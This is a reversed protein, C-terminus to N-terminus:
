VSVQERLISITLSLMIYIGMFIVFALMTNELKRPYTPQDPAIPSVGLSLYRVQRSAEIRAGELQQLAVQVMTQRALLNAEAVALEGSIAALSLNGDNTETLERRIEGVRIRLREIDRNLADARITNPSPNDMIEGLSLRKAEIQLELASVLGMRSSIEIEASLIGRKQQLALVDEQAQAMKNEASEYIIAAGQMQDARVRISLADVREEAYVILASAFKASAEPTTAIVELHIVGETPDYGVKVYKKYYAYAQEQTADVPLRQMDDIFDQQFHARYGLEEDLRLMAERSMLYGQVVISDASNAFGTGSLLGALGGGGGSESKQIVFEAQTEYMNTAETYYYQGVLYTPLFIFFALRMLLFFLRRRRRGVLERQIAHVEALREADNLSIGGGGSEAVGGLMADGENEGDLISVEDKLIDVGRDELLRAADEDSDAALGMKRAKQRAKRYYMKGRKPKANGTDNPGTNQPTDESTM